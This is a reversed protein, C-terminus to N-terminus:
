VAHTTCQSVKADRDIEGLEVRNAPRPQHSEVVLPCRLDGRRRGDVEDSLLRAGKPGRSGKPRRYETPMPADLSRLTRLTMWRESLLKAAAEVRSAEPVTPPADFLAVSHLALDARTQSGLSM